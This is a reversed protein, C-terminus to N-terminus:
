RTTFTGSPRRSCRPTSRRFSSRARSRSPSNAQAGLRADHARSGCQSARFFFSPAPACPSNAAGRTAPATPHARAGPGALMSKITGSVLAARRDIIIESGDSAILKVPDMSSQARASALAAKVTHQMTPIPVDMSGLRRSHSLGPVAAAVAVAVARLDGAKKVCRIRRGWM